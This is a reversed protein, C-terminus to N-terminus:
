VDRCKSTQIFAYFIDNQLIKKLENLTIRRQKSNAPTLSIELSLKNKSSNDKRYNLNQM